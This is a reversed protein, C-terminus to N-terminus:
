FGVVSVHHLHQYRRLDVTASANTGKIDGGRKEILFSAIHRSGCLGNSETRWRHCQMPLERLYFRVTIYHPQHDTFRLALRHRRDIPPQYYASEAGIAADAPPHM